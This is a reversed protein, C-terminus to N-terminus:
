WIAGTKPQPIYGAFRGIEHDFGTHVGPIIGTRTLMDAVEGDGCGLDLVPMKANANAGAYKGLELARFFAMMPKWYYHGCAVDFYYKQKPIKPM